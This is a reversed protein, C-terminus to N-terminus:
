NSSWRVLQSTVEDQLGAAVLLALAVLAAGGAGALGARVPGPLRQPALRLLGTLAPLPALIGAGYVILEGAGIVPRDPLQNLVQGFAPGVCPTWLQAAAGGALVAGVAAKLRPGVTIRRRATESGATSGPAPCGRRVGDGAASTAATLLSRTGDAPATTAATLLLGAAALATATMVVPWTGALGAFRLWAAMSMSLAFGAAAIPRGTRAALVVASGPVLVILSCPLSASRLGEILLSIM